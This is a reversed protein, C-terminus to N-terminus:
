ASAQAAPAPLRQWHQDILAICRACATAVSGHAGPVALDAVGAYLPTRVLSMARLREARDNGALLPRRDDRRLRQLQQEVSTQLWVVFGRAALRECNAPALVAGAGTAMVLGSRRSREDLLASERARFGAEGEIEFVMGVDVGTHSEIEQDLDIFALGYHAALQRGISTKGAGTAGVIFLNSSPNM